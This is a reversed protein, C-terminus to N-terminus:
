KIEHYKKAIEVDRSIQAKLIEINEYKSESRIKKNFEIRINLDYIDEDFDFLYTEILRKDGGVTPNYGINTISNYKTNNVYSNTIYVGNPPIVRTENIFINATPFGMKKGLEKGHVVIGELSYKRGLFNKCTEMDGASILERIKTSSVLEGDITVPELVFVEFNNKQSMEKLLEPTGEAKYGFRYHFGCNAQKMNLKGILINKVFDAPSMKSFKEDFEIVILYDVGLSEIIRVKEKWTVIKKVTDPSKTIDRSHNRFTFVISSLGNKKCYQVTNNILRQHGIHIGDFNGLAIGTEGINAIDDFSHFVKM